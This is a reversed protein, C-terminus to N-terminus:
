PAQEQQAETSRLWVSLATHLIQAEAVNLLTSAQGEAHEIYVHFENHYLEIQMEDNIYLKNDQTM